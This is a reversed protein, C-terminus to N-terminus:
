MKHRINHTANELKQPSVDAFAQDAALVLHHPIANMGHAVIWARVRGELSVNPRKRRIEDPPTIRSPAGGLMATCDDPVPRKRSQLAASDSAMGEQGLMSAPTPRAELVCEIMSRPPGGCARSAERDIDTAPREEGSRHSENRSRQAPAAEREKEEEWRRENDRWRQASAAERRRLEAIEAAMKDRESEARIREAEVRALEARHARVLAASEVIAEGRAVVYVTLNCPAVAFMAPDPADGVAQAVLLGVFTGDGIARWCRDFHAQDDAGPLHALPRLDKTLPDILCALNRSPMELTATLAFRGERVPGRRVGGYEFLLRAAARVNPYDDLPLVLAAEVDERLDRPVAALTDLSGDFGRAFKSARKAAERRSRELRARQTELSEAILPRAADIARGVAVELERCLSVVSRPPFMNARTSFGLAVAVDWM